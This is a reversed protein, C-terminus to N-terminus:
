IFYGRIMSSQRGGGREELLARIQLRKLLEPISELSDSGGAQRAQRTSDIGLSRLRKNLNSGRSLYKFVVHVRKGGGRISAEHNLLNVGSSPMPRSSYWAM